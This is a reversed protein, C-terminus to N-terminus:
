LIVFDGNVLDDRREKLVPSNEARAMPPRLKPNDNKRKSPLKLRARM